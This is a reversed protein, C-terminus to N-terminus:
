RRPYPGPWPGGGATRTGRGTIVGHGDRAGLYSPAAAHRKQIWLVQRREGEWYDDNIDFCLKLGRYSVRVAQQLRVLILSKM